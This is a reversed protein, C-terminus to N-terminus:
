VGYNHSEGCKESSQSFIKGIIPSFYIRYNASFLNSSQFCLLFPMLREGKSENGNDADDDEDDDESDGSSKDPLIEEFILALPLDFINCM